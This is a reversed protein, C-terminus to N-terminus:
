AWSSPAPPTPSTTWSKRAASSSCARTARTPITATSAPPSARRPVRRAVTRRRRDAGRRLPRLAQGRQLIPDRLRPLALRQPANRRGQLRRKRRLPRPRALPPGLARRVAALRAPPRGSERVSAALQRRPLRRGRRSHAAPRHSRLHRPAAPHDQRRAAGPEIGKAELKALIFHTSPTARGMNTHKVAPPTQTKVKQFSWFERQRQTFTDAALLVTCCAFVSLAIRRMRM